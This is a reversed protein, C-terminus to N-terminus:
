IGLYFTLRFKIFTAFNIVTIYVKNILEIADISSHGTREQIVIVILYQVSTNPLVRIYLLVIVAITLM